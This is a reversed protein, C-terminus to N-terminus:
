ESLLISSNKRKETEYIAKDTVVAHMQMDWPDTLINSFLQEEFAVGIFRANTCLPLFRDYYGGGWGLRHGKRDFAVGPVIILDLNEPVCITSFPLKPEVIGYRDYERLHPSSADNAAVMNGRGDTVPFYVTKGQLYATQCIDDVCLENAYAYYALINSAKQYAEYALLRSAAAASKKAALGKGLARRARRGSVRLYEKETVNQEM